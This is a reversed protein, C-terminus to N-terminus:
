WQLTVGSCCKTGTFMLWNKEKFDKGETKFRCSMVRQLLGEAYEEQGWGALAQLDNSFYTSLFGAGYIGM